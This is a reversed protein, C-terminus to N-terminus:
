YTPYRPPSPTSSGPPMQGKRAAEQYRCYDGTRGLSLFVIPLVFLPLIIWGFGVALGGVAFPMALSAVVIGTVRAWRTGQLVLAGSVVGFSFAMFVLGGLIYMATREDAPYDDPNVSAFILLMAGIGVMIVSGVILLVAGATLVGPRKSPDPPNIPPYQPAMPPMPPPYHPGPPYQPPQSGQSNYPDYM